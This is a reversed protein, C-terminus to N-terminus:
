TEENNGSMYAKQMKVFRPHLAVEGEVVPSEGEDETETEIERRFRWLAAKKTISIDEVKLGPVPLSMLRETNEPDITWLLGREKLIKIEDPV